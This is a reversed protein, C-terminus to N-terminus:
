SSASRYGNLARLFLWRSGAFSLVTAALAFLALPWQNAELPKALLRAPVNVVVLVPILFTFLWGLAGGIPGRYIEMPYRSFNTIYFWFDYISQNRGLWVTSAALTITLSYLIVVGSVIYLPYLLVAAFGPFVNLKFLSFALLGIAFLFNALSSWDIKALSILFQTDIPKLLAFDLEGTRVLESFEEANPMFLAEVISNILQLTALFVFYQYQGWGGVSKTYQFVLLYFSLNMGVWSLSTICELLFNTRFTMARVLSNRAFTLFVRLYKPRQPPPPAILFPRHMAATEVPETDLSGRIM